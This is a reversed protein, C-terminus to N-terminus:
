LLISNGLFIHLISPGSAVLLEGVMRNCNVICPYVHYPDTALMGAISALANSKGNGRKGALLLNASTRQDCVGKLM